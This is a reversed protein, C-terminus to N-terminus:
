DQEYWISIVITSLKFSGGSQSQEIKKIEVTPNDLLWQNIDNELECDHKESLGMSFSLKPYLMKIFLKTKM